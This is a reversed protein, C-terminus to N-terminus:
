SQLVNNNGIPKLEKGGFTTASGTFSETKRTFIGTVVVEEMEQQSEQMTVNIVHKGKEFAIEQTQMGVFSFVLVPKEVGKVMIYYEGKENTIVGQDTGKVQVALGPLPQGEKDTVTGRLLREKQKQAFSREIERLTVYIFQGDIRYDLPKDGIIMNMVEKVDSSDITGNVSMQSIDDYTFMIKYGSIKELRKFVEPLRENKLEMRITKQPVVEQAEVSIPQCVSFCFCFLLFLYCYKKM